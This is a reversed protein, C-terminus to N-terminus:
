NPVRLASSFASSFLYLLRKLTTVNKPVYLPSRYVTVGESLETTWWNKFGNHRYRDTRPRQQLKRSLRGLNEGTARGHDQLIRYISGTTMQFRRALERADHGERRLSIIRRNRALRGKRLPSLDPM